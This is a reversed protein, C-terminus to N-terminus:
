APETRRQRRRSSRVVQPNTGVIPINDEAEPTHEKRGVRRKKTIPTDDNTIPTDDKRIPTLEGFKHIPTLGESPTLGKQPVLGEHPVLDERKYIAVPDKRKRVPPLNERKHTQPLVETTDATKTEDDENEGTTDDFSTRATFLKRAGSTTGENTSAPSNSPAADADRELAQSSEEPAPSSEGLGVYVKPNGYM